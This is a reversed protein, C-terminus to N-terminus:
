KIDSIEGKTLRTLEQGLRTLINDLIQKIYQFRKSIFSYNIIIKMSM